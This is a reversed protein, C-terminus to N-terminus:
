CGGFMVCVSQSPLVLQWGIKCCDLCGMWGDAWVAGGFRAAQLAGCLKSAARFLSLLSEICCTFGLYLSLLSKICSGCLDLNSLLSQVCYSPSHWMSLNLQTKGGVTRPKGAGLLCYTRVLQFKGSSGLVPGTLVEMTFPSMPCSVPAAHVPDSSKSFLNSAM